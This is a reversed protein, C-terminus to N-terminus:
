PSGPDYKGSPSQGMPIRRTLVRDALVRYRQIQDTRSEKSAEKEMSVLHQVFALPARPEQAGLGPLRICGTISHRDM